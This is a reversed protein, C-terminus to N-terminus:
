PCTTRMNTYGLSRIYYYRRDTCTMRLLQELILDGDGDLPEPRWSPDERERVKERCTTCELRRTTKVRGM